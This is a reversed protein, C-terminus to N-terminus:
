PAGSITIPAGKAISACENRVAAPSTSPVNRIIQSFTCAKPSTLIPFSPILHACIHWGHHVVSAFRKRYFYPLDGYRLNTLAIDEHSYARHADTSAIEM